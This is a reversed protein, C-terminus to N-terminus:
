EVKKLNPNEDLAVALALAAWIDKKVGELKCGKRAEGHRIRLSARVEADSRGGIHGKITPRGYREVRTYGQSIYEFIGAWRCTDFVSKGVSMGYCQPFEIAVLDINCLTLMDDLALCITGNDVIGKNDHMYDIFDGNEWLVFASKIPGPDIALIKM